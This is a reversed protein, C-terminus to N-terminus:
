RPPRVIIERDVSRPELVGSRIDRAYRLFVAMREAEAAAGEAASLTYRELPLGHAPAAAVAARLAAEAAPELWFPANDRAAYFDTVAQGELSAGALAATLAQADVAQAVAPLPTVAICLVALPARLAANSWHYM